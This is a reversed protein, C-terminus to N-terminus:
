RRGNYNCRGPKQDFGVVYCRSFNGNNNQKKESGLYGNVLNEATLNKFKMEFFKWSIKELLSFTWQKKCNLEVNAACKLFALTRTDKNNGRFVDLSGERQVGVGWLRRPM